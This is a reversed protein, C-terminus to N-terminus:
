RSVMIDVTGVSGVQEYQPLRKKNLERGIGDPLWVQSLYYHDDYRKFTLKVDGTTRASGVTRVPLVTANQKGDKSQIRVIQTEGTVRYEGAPLVKNGVNFEFPVVFTQYQKVDQGYASAVSFMMVMAVLATLRLVTVRMEVEM